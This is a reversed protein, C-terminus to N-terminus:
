QTIQKKQRCKKLQERKRRREEHYALPIPKRQKKPRGRKNKPKESVNIEESTENHGVM